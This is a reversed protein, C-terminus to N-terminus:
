LNYLHSLDLGPYHILDIGKEKLTQVTFGSGYTSSMDTEVHGQLTNMISKDVGCNRCADEFTHRFSHFCNKDTKVKVFELFRKFHASFPKSYTGDHGQNCEPFLRTGAQINSVHGLIGISILENHIPIKRKSGENKTKRCIDFFFVGDGDQKIDEAHLQLVEELRMGTFLAILPVMFRGSTKFLNLGPEKWKILSVCGRYLPANFMATLEDVSFSDRASRPSEKTTVKLGKMPNGQVCDYNNEAWSWFSKVFEILKNANRTSMHDLGLSRAKEAAKSIPLRKLQEQKIWNPPLDLLVQKFRRGDEKSYADIPRDGNIEIFNKMWVQMEKSTGQTWAGREKDKVWEKMVMSCLPQLKPIPPTEVIDGQNRRLIFQNSEIMAAQLANSDVSTTYIKANGWASLCAEGPRPSKVPTTM